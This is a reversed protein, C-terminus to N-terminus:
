QLVQKLGQVLESLLDAKEALPCLCLKELGQPFAAPLIRCHKMAYQALRKEGPHMLENVAFLLDFYSAIFASVRHNISIVDGRRIATRIQEDFSCNLKGSLMPLNKKIINDRLVTPYPSKTIKQLRGFWGDPDFLISSNSVNHVLCTSYGVSAEGRIWVREIQEEIWGPSRYIIEVGANSGALLWDDCNEYINQDVEHQTSFAAAIERRWEVDIRETAYVYIDQDSFDDNLGSTVSGSLVIALVPPQQRFADVLPLFQKQVSGNSDTDKVRFGGEMALSFAGCMSTCERMRSM